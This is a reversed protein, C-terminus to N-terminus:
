SNERKSQIITWPAELESFLALEDSARDIWKEVDVVTPHRELEEGEWRVLAAPIEAPAAAM